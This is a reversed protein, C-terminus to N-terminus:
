DSIIQYILLYLFCLGQVLELYNLGATDKGLYLNYIKIYNHLFVNKLCPFHYCYGFYFTREWLVNMFEHGLQNDIIKSMGWWLCIFIFYWGGAKEPFSFHNQKIKDKVDVEPLHKSSNGRQKRLFGLNTHIMLYNGRLM